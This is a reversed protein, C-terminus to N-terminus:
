LTQSGQLFLFLQNKRVRRIKVWSQQPREGRKRSSAEKYTNSTIRRARVGAAKRLKHLAQFLHNRKQPTKERLITFSREWLGLHYYIMAFCKQSRLDGM